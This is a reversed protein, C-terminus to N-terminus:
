SWPKDGLDPLRANLRRRPELLACLRVKEGPPLHLEEAEAPLEHLVGGQVEATYHILAMDIAGQKRFREALVFNFHM